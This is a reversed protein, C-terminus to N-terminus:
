TRQLQFIQTQGLVVPLSAPTVALLGGNLRVNIPLVSGSAGMLLPFRYLFAGNADSLTYPTGPPPVPAAGPWMEIKLGAVPQASPSQIQGRVATEGAPPRFSFAPWLPKPILFDSRQPPTSIPLPLTLLIPEFNIYDGASATVQVPLNVGTFAPGTLTLSSFRYTFDGARLANWRFKAISVELPSTIPPATDVLPFLFADYFRYVAALTRQLLPSVLTSM